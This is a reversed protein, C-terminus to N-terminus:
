RRIQVQLFNIKEELKQLHNLLAADATGGEKQRHALARSKEEYLGALQLTPADFWTQTFKAWVYGIAQPTPHALDEEYFRYDKLDDNILEYAPFYVCNQYQSCILHIAYRLISKSLNNEMVGDRLHRVPSVTFIIKIGPNFSQLATLVSAFQKVIEEPSALKKEFSIATQKHCNAVVTKLQIHEYYFASGLTILLYTSRQLDQAAKAQLSSMKKILEGETSASIDSHAQFSLYRDDRKLIYKSEPPRGTIITILEEAISLPNFVTGAPNCAIDFGAEQLRLSMHVTFCSGSLFLKDRHTINTAPKEPNLDLHLKM